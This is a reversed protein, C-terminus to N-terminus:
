RKGRRIAPAPPSASEELYEADENVRWPDVPQGLLQKVGLQGTLISHDMNNYRFQGYRGVCVLNNFTELYSRILKIRQSSQSDYVPYAKAYRVVFYNEVLSPDVIGMATLDRKATAFLEEGPRTWTADDEDCFYELGITSSTEPNPSLAPSWNSYFQARCATINPAHLYVWTAPFKGPSRLILNVTMISRYKLAKAAALVNAPPAPNLSQVLESIPMSSVFRGAPVTRVTDGQKIELSEIQQNNHRVGVVKQELLIKTGGQQAKQAMAEYMQGPGLNPYDFEEILSTVGGKRGLGIANIVARGLSLNRIRQAAWQASLEDCTIGWVKETYTKFFMEFLQKGFRNGVWDAFSIEPRIPFLKRWLFSGMAWSTRGLGIGKLVNRPKLPYNFFNDRFFIYSLRPRRLFDEPLIDHWLKNVAENKTFFRHGGIDCRYGDHCVTKSLGGVQSDQEFVTCPLSQNVSLEYAAALGAPGSGIIAFDGTTKKGTNDM